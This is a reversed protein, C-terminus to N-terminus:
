TNSRRREGRRSAVSDGRGFRGHEGSAREGVSRPRVGDGLGVDGAEDSRRRVSRHDDRVRQQVGNARRARYHRRPPSNRAHENQVRRQPPWRPRRQMSLRSSRSPTKADQKAPADVQTVAASNADGEAISRIRWLRMSVHWHARIAAREPDTLSKGNAHVAQNLEKKIRRLYGRRKNRTDPKEDKALASDDEDAETGLLSAPAAASASPVAAGGDAAAAPVAVLLAGLALLSLRTM